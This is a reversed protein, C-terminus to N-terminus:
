IDSSEGIKRWVSALWPQREVPLGPPRYYQERESFAASEVVARWSDAGADAGDRSIAGDEVGGSEPAAAAAAAMGASILAAMRRIVYQDDDSFKRHGSASRHPRPIGYRREWTRPCGATVGTAMAAAKISYQM